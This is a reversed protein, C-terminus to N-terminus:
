NLNWKRWKSPLIWRIHQYMDFIYPLYRVIKGNTKILYRLLGHKNTILRNRRRPNTPRSIPNRAVSRLNGQTALPKPKPSKFSPHLLIQKIEQAATLVPMIASDPSTIPVQPVRHHRSSTHQYILWSEQTM